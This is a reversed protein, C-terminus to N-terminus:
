LRELRRTSVTMMLVWLAQTFVSEAMPILHPLPMMAMLVMTVAKTRMGMESMTMRMTMWM